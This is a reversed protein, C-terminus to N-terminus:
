CLFPLVLFSDSTWGAAEQVARSRALWQEAEAENEGEIALTALGDYCPFLLQPEGLKEALGLAERYHERSRSYDGRCQYIQALIIIPIPLHGQQGLRRDLEIATEAAKVGEDYDGAITCHGGALACFLWSQQLQDGIKQALALGERCYAASREHDLSTYMVALNTYARCAVAALDAALATDLSKQVTAAGRELEGARAAAVGLTNYANSVVDAAGLREGLALAQSAWETARRNDGLRFHIRGLEQYIRAAELADRDAGLAALGDELEALARDTDGATWQAVASKRRLDAVRRGEAAPTAALAAGWHEIAAAILGRAFAADGLRDLVASREPALEGHAEVLALAERYVTEADEYAFLRQARMGARTLYHLAKGHDGSRGYHRALDHLVQDLRDAYLRELARGAAAHLEARSKLLLGRYAVDRILAQAFSLRLEPFLEKEHLLELAVLEAVAGHVDEGAPTVAALLGVTFERGLVSARQLTRKLPERLRDIRATLLDHITEPVAEKSSAPGEKRERLYGALEEIFLPNGEARAVVRDDFSSSECSALLAKAMQAAQAPALPELALRQHFSREQWPPVYGPRYTCLILVRRDALADVLARLTEESSRDIWQLDEVVLLQPGQDAGRFLLAKVAELTRRKRQAQDLGEADLESAPLALLLKCYPIVWALGADLQTVVAELKQVQASETEGQELGFSARLFETIVRFPATEGHPLCDARWAGLARGELRSRLEYALRSKGTGAEGVLSVAQGKGGLAREFCDELFQIERSRGVLPTLGREVAAEFRSRRTREGTVAFAHVPQAIGKVALAGRDETAFTRSVLRYTAESILVGGASGAAQLRAALNVTEGQATYDMRLDDGIKGVVVPGTNLGIRLGFEIDRGRKLEAAYDGLAKQIALAAAVARVAHDEHAIPAGFLAMVGDGTFQNVTGEYRHVAEMVHRFCGDMVAHLEEPDLRTSLATFGAVDAFLVTVQKREGELASRSTLIKEALHRPTYAQPSPPIPAARPADAVATGCADCFRAAQPLEAGCSACTRALVAGCGACFKAQSRNEHSCAACRM